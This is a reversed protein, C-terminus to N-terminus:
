RGISEQARVIVGKENKTLGEHGLQCNVIWTRKWPEGNNSLVDRYM